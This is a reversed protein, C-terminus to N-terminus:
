DACISLVDRGHKFQVVFHLATVDTLHRESYTAVLRVLRAAVLAFCLFVAGYFVAGIVTTPVLFDRVISELPHNV